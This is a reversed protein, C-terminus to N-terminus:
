LVGVPLCANHGKAYTGKCIDRQMHGKAYMEGAKVKMKQLDEGFAAGALCLMLPFLLRM